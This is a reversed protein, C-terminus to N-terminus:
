RLGRGMARAVKCRKVPPTIGPEVCCRTCLISGAHYGGRKTVVTWHHLHGWHGLRADGGTNAARNQVPEGVADGIDQLADDFYETFGKATCEDLTDYEPHHKSCGNGRVETSNEIIEEGWWHGGCFGVTFFALGPAEVIIQIGTRIIGADQGSPDSLTTPSSNVYEFLNPGESYGLPDRQLFRGTTPDQYRARYYTLGSEEDLFRSTFTWHNGLPDTTQPTGGVTITM